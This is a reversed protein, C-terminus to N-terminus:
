CKNAPSVPTKGDTALFVTLSPGFNVSVFFKYSLSVYAFFIQERYYERLNRSHVM